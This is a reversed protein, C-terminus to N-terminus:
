RYIRYVADIRWVPPHGYLMIYHGLSMHLDVVYSQQLSMLFRYMTWPGDRGEPTKYVMVDAYYKKRQASTALYDHVVTHKNGHSM